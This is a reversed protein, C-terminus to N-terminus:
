DNKNENDVIIHGNISLEYKRGTVDALKIKKDEWKDYDERVSFDHDMSTSRYIIKGQAIKIVALEQGDITKTREFGEPMEEGVFENLNIRLGKEEYVYNHFYDKESGKILKETGQYTFEIDNLFTQIM